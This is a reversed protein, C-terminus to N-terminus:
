QSCLFEVSVGRVVLAEATKYDNYSPLRLPRYKICKINPLSPLEALTIYSRDLTLSELSDAVSSLCLYSLIPSNSITLHKLQKVRCLTQDTILLADKLELTTLATMQDLIPQYIAGSSRIELETINRINRCVVAALYGIEFIRLKTLHPMVVSADNTTLATITGAIKLSELYPLSSLATTNLKGTILTDDYLSLHKLRPMAYLTEDRITSNGRLSLTEVQTLRLLADRHERTPDILALSRLRTLGALTTCSINENDYPLSLTELWTMASLTDQEIYDRNTLNLKKVGTFFCLQKSSLFPTINLKCLLKVRPFLQQTVLQSMMSSTTRITFATVTDKISSGISPLAYLLIEIWIESPFIISM